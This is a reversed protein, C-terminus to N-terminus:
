INPAAGSKGLSRTWKIPGKGSGLFVDPGALKSLYLVVQRVKECFKRSSLIKNKSLLKAAHTLGACMEICLSDGHVAIHLYRGVTPLSTHPIYFDNPVWTGLYM